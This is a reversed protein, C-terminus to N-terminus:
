DEDGLSFNLNEAKTYGYLGGHFAPLSVFYIDDRGDVLGDAPYVNALTTM